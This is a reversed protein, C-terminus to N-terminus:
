NDEKKILYMVKCLQEQIFFKKRFINNLIKYDKVCLFLSAFADSYGMDM